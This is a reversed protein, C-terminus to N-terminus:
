DPPPHIDPNRDGLDQFPANTYYLTNHVQEKGLHNLSTLFEDFSLGFRSKAAKDNLQQQDEKWTDAPFNSGTVWRWAKGNEHCRDIIQVIGMLNLRDRVQRFPTM